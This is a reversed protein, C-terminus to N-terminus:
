DYEVNYHYKNMISIGKVVDMYLNLSASSEITSCTQMIHQFPYFPSFLIHVIRALSIIEMPEVLVFVPKCQSSLLGSYEM